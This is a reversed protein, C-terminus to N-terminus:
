KHEMFTVTLLGCIFTQSRALISIVYIINQSCPVIYHRSSEAALTSYFGIERYQLGGDANEGNPYLM